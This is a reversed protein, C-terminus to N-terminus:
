CKIGKHRDVGLTEWIFRRLHHLIGFCDPLQCGLVGAWGPEAVILLESLGALRAWQVPRLQM